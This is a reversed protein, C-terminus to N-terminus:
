ELLAKIKALYKETTVEGVRIIEEARNYGSIATIERSVPMEIYLDPPYVLLNLDTIRGAMINESLIMASFQDPMSLPLRPKTSGPQVASNVQIRLQVDIALVKEAGLQYVQDIPMNNLVGGDVLRMSGIEVPPFVGPLACSAMISNLVKGSRLTVAHGTNLDTACVSLPIKLQDFELYEPIMSTLLSKLKDVDILGKFPQRIHVMRIMNRNRTTEVALKELTELSLGSAYAAGIIAGMSTGSIFDPRIQERELVKLLGIHSLGRAGGGSLVLGLKSKKKMDSWGEFM